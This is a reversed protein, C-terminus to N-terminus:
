RHNEEREPAWVGRPEAIPRLSLRDSMLVYRLAPCPGWHDSSGAVAMQEEDDFAERDEMREAIGTGDTLEVSLGHM